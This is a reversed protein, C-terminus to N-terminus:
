VLLLSKFCFWFSYSNVQLKEKFFLSLSITAKSKFHRSHGMQLSVYEHCKNQQGEM